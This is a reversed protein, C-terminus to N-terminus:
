NEQHNSRQNSDFELITEKKKKKKKSLSLFDPM